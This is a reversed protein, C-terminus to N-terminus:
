VEVLPSQRVYQVGGMVSPIKLYDLAGARIQRPQVELPRFPPLTGVQHAAHGAPLLRVCRGELAVMDCRELDAIAAKFIPLGLSCAKMRSRVTEFPLPGDLLIRIIERHRYTLQM